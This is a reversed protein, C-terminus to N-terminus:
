MRSMLLVTEQYYKDEELSKVKPPINKKLDAWVWWIMDSVARELMSACFIDELNDVNKKVLYAELVKKSFEGQDMKWLKGFRRAFLSIMFAPNGTSVKQWDIFKVKNEKAIWFINGPHVDNYIFEKPAKRM